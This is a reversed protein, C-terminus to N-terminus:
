RPGVYVWSKSFGSGNVQLEFAGIDCGQGYPRSIGRQDTDVVCQDPLIADIAPSGPSLAHTQTNGGNDDLPALGPDGSHASDCSGDEVLNNINTGISADEGLFCDVLGYKDLSIANDAIITNTYNLLGRVVGEEGTGHVYVGGGNRASNNVITSNTFEGVGNIYVGGGNNNTNNGSITSNVLVLTGLCAIHLGGGKGLATNGSVTSNILETVGAMNKIGGGTNCELYTDGGTATNNSVTCNILTLKGDNFIGGGASGRNDRIISEEILLEGENRIGGGSQPESSPNGHRITMGKITVVAGDAIYFVRETAEDLDAHAQVITSDAGQGQITVDKGVVIGSETHVADTINIVAGATVSSDDMADQVTIFDCGAACVTVEDGGALHIFVLVLALGVILIAILGLFLFRNTRQFLYSM